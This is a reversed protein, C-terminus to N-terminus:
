MGLVIHCLVLRMLWMIIAIIRYTTREYIVIVWRLGTWTRSCLAARCAARGAM